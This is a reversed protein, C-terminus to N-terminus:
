RRKLAAAIAQSKVRIIATNSQRSTKLRYHDRILNAPRPLNRNAFVAINVDGQAARDVAVVYRGKSVRIAIAPLVYDLIKSFQVIPALPQANVSIM